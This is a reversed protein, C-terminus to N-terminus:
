EDGLADELLAKVEVLVHRPSRPGSAQARTALEVAERAAHEVDQLQRMRWVPVSMFEDDPRHHLGPSM